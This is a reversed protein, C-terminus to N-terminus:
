VSAAERQTLQTASTAQRSLVHCFFQEYRTAIRDWTFHTDVRERRAAVHAADNLTIAQNLADVVAQPATTDVLLGCEGLTWRTVWRDHTVIPLGSALAEM